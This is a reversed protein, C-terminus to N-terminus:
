PGFCRRGHGGHERAAAVRGRNVAPAACRPLRNLARARRNRRQEIRWGLADDEDTAPGFRVM